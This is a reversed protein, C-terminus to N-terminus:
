ILAGLERLKPVIRSIPLGVIGWYDGEIREIFTAGGGQIAYGGALDFPEGTDVYQVIEDESLNRFLVTSENVGTYKDGTRSDVIAYGTFVTHTKGSLMRLMDAAKDSTHPKGLVVGDVYLFTDAGIIIADAHRIVVSLAKGLALNQALEQPPIKQTMDEQFDGVDIDFEIGSM